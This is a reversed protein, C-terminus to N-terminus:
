ELLHIADRLFTKFHFNLTTNSKGLFGKGCLDGTSFFYVADMLIRTRRSKEIRSVYIVTVFTPCFLSRKEPRPPRDSRGPYRRSLSHILYMM